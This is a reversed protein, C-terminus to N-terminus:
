LARSASTGLCRSRAMRLGNVAFDNKRVWAHLARMGNTEGYWFVPPMRLVKGSMAIAFGLRRAGAGHRLPLGREDASPHHGPPPVHAPELPLHWLNGGPVAMHPGHFCKLIEPTGSQKM